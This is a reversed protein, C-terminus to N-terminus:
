PRILIHVLKSDACYYHKINTEKNVVHGLITDNWDFILSLFSTILSDPVDLYVDLKTIADNCQFVMQGLQSGDYAVGNQDLLRHEISNNNWQEVSLVFDHYFISGLSNLQLLCHDRYEVMDFTRILKMM